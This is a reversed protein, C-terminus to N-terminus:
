VLITRDGSASDRALTRFCDLTDRCPIGFGNCVGEDSRRSIM